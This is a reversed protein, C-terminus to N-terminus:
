EDAHKHTHKDLDATHIGVDPHLFGSVPHTRVKCDHLTGQRARKRVPSSGRAVHTDRDVPTLNLRSQKM